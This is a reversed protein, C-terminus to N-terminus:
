ADGGVWSADQTRWLRANPTNFIAAGARQLCAFIEYLARTHLRSMASSTVGRERAIQGLPVSEWYHRQIVEHLTGSLAKVCNLTAAEAEEREGSSQADSVVHVLQDPPTPRERDRRLYMLTETQLTRFFYARMREPQIVVGREIAARVKDRAQAHLDEAEAKSVRYHQVVYAIADSRWRASLLDEEAAKQTSM